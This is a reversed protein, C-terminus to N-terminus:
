CTEMNRLKGYKILINTLEKINHVEEFILSSKTDLLYKLILKKKLGWVDNPYGKVEIILNGCIFDPTYHVARISQENYKFKPILELISQEYTFTIKNDILYKAVRAELKSRFKIGQYETITAGIIKKNTM